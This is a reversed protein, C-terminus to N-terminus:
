SKELRFGISERDDRVVRGWELLLRFLYIEMDERRLAQDAWRKGQTAIWEGDEWRSETEVERGNVKGRGKLGVFYALTSHLAHYRLDVPVFHLWPVIRESYWEGFVSTLFPVSGSSRITRLLDRPPASDEDLLFVYRHELPDLGDDPRLGLEARAVDCAPGDCEYNSIGINFPLLANAETARVPEYAFYNKQAPAVLMMTVDDAATANNVLHVLRNKHSGRLAEDSIPQDGITGRWYLEDKRQRFPKNLDPGEEVLPVLPILIDNFGDAKSRGFVPILEPVPDIKPPSMHFSHLRTLDQQDCLAKSEAWSWIFQNDSHFKVCSSCFDRVNWHLGSRGPSDAPCVSAELERFAKTSAYAMANTPPMPPEVGMALEPPKNEDMVAPQAEQKQGEAANQGPAAGEAPPPQAAAGGVAEESRTSLLKFKKASNRGAKTYRTLDSWPTLVRPQDALNIPIKMDSLHEAFGDMMNIVEDLMKKNEDDWMYNHIAKKDQVTIVAIRPMTPIKEDCAKRITEPKVGWFPLIDSEMQEFHDIIVSKRDKAYQYWKDFNPPPARGYHREQYVQVATRLNDSTSAQRLWRDGTVRANYVERELPHGKVTDPKILGYTSMGVLFLPLLLVIVVRKIFFVSRINATYLLFSFGWAIFYLPIIAGFKSTIQWRGIHMVNQYAASMGSVFTIIGAPMSPSTECVLITLSAILVTFTVSDIFIDFFYLSDLGKISVPYGEASSIFPSALIQFVKIFVGTLAQIVGLTRLRLKTTKTWSLVRHLIIAIAADLFLGLLQLALTLVRSDLLSSCFFTSPPESDVALFTGYSLVLASLLMPVHAGNLWILIDDTLTDWPQAEKPPPLAPRRCYYIDYFVLLTCLLSQIGPTSCQLQATVRHFVELRFFILFVLLPVFYRRPRAPISPEFTGKSAVKSEDFRGDAGPLWKALYSAGWTLGGSIVFILISSLRPWEARM